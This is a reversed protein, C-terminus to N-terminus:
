TCLLSIGQVSFQLQLSTLLIYIHINLFSSYNTQLDIFGIAGYSLDM